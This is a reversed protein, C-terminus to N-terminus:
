TRGLERILYFSLTQLTKAQEKAESGVQQTVRPM